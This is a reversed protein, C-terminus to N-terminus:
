RGREASRRQEQEGLDEEQVLREPVDRARPRQRQRRECDERDGGRRDRQDGSDGRRGGHDDRHCDRVRDALAILRRAPRRRRARRAPM